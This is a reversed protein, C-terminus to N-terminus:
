PLVNRAFLRLIQHFYNYQRVLGTKSDGVITSLRYIAVPLEPMAEFVLQEAEYKSQQYTNTFGSENGLMAEPIHGVTRGAVYVTSLHAFKELRKCGRAMKLLNSTGRTNTARAQEIPLGFRTEAACHIIETIEKQIQRLAATHLGLGPRTLDGEIVTIQASQNLSAIKDPTRTLVILRRDPRAGPLVQLLESGVLGTAGTLFTVPGSM